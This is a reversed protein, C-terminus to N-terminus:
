SWCRAVGGGGETCQPCPLGVLRLGDVGTGRGWGQEVCRVHFGHGCAGVVVDLGRDGGACVGGVVGGGSNVAPAPCGPGSLALGCFGCPSGPCFSAGRHTSRPLVLNLGMKEVAHKVREEQQRRQQQQQQQTAEGHEGELRRSDSFLRSSTTRPKVAQAPTASTTSQGEQGLPTVMDPNQFFSTLEECALWALRPGLANTGDGAVLGNAGCNRDNNEGICTGGGVGVGVGRATWM